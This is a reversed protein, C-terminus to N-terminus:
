IQSDKKVGRKKSSPNLAALIDQCQEHQLISKFDSIYNKIASLKQIAAKARENYENPNIAGISKEIEQDHRINGPGEAKCRYYLNEIATLMCGLELDKQTAASGVIDVEKQMDSRKVDTEEIRKQFVSIEINLELMEDKREKEYQDRRLKIQQLEEELKQSKRSLSSHSKKLTEYRALIDSIDSFEDSNKERVRELFDEYKKM